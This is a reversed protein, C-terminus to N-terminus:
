AESRPRSDGDEVGSADIAAEDLMDHLELMVVSGNLLSHLRLVDDTGLVATEEGMRLQWRCDCDCRYVQRALSQIAEHLPAVEAPAVTWTREALTLTLRGEPTWTAAGHETAFLVSSELADPVM